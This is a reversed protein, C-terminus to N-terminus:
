ATKCTCIVNLDARSRLRKLAIESKKRLLM